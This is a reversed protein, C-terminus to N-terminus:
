RGFFFDEKNSETVNIDSYSKVELCSICFLIFFDFYSVFVMHNVMWGCGVINLVVRLLKVLVVHYIKKISNVKIIMTVVM